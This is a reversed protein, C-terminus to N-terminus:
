KKGGGGAPATVGAALLSNAGGAGWVPLVSNVLM